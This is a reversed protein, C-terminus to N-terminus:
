WAKNPVTMTQYPMNNNSSVSTLTVAKKLGGWVMSWVLLGLVAFIGIGVALGMIVMAIRDWPREPDIMFRWTSDKHPYDRTLHPPYPPLEKPEITADPRDANGCCQLDKFPPNPCPDIRVCNKNKSNQEALVEDLTTNMGNIGLRHNDLYAARNAFAAQNRETLSFEPVFVISDSVAKMGPVDPSTQQLIPASRNMVKYHDSFSKDGILRYYGNSQKSAITPDIVSPVDDAEFSTSTPPLPSWKSQTITASM